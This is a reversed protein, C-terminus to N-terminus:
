MAGTMGMEQPQEPPVGLAEPDVAAAEAAADVGATGELGPDDQPPPKLPMNSRKMLAQIFEELTQTFLQQLGPDLSGFKDGKRYRNLEMIWLELNDGEHIEFPDGQELGKIGKEIQAMDLGYDEWCEAVDGFELQALVKELVKPDQPNGLYGGQHLNMIEQRRLVKSGPLTSGRIVYVDTNGRLDEGRMEKVTYQLNKGAIKLKRPL